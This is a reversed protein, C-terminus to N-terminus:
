ISTNWLILADEDNDLYYHKRRGVSKLGFKGYLKLAADNSPRVELTVATVGRSKVEAILNEFLKTGIGQHRFDPHVAVNTVQAEGFSIWAGAYAVVKEQITGVIYIASDNKLEEWFSERSWPMAFCLMEIEAMEEADSSRMQRFKISEIAM